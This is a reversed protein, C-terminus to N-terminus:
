FLYSESWKEKILNIIEEDAYKIGTLTKYPQLQGLVDEVLTSHDKYSNCSSIPLISEAFHRLARQPFDNMTGRNPGQLGDFRDDYPMLYTALCNSVDHEKARLFLRLKSKETTALDILQHEFIRFYPLSMAVLVIDYSKTDFSASFPSKSNLVKWWESANGESIKNLVCDKNGLSITLSYPPVKQTAKILGLGASAVLIDANLLSAARKIESFVRGSYLADASIKKDEKKLQELWRDALEDTLGSQHGSIICGNTATLRKRQTCNTVILSRKELTKM